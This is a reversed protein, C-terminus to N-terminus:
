RFSFLYTAQDGQFSRSAVTERDNYLTIQANALRDSCCDSRNVVAIELDALRVPETLDFQWVPDFRDLSTQAVCASNGSCGADGVAYRLNDVPYDAATSSASISELLERTVDQGRVFLRVQDANLAIYGVRDPFQRSIAFRTVYQSTDEPSSSRTGFFIVLFIVFLGLALIALVAATSMIKKKQEALQVLSKKKTM